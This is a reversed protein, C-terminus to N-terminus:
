EVEPLLSSHHHLIPREEGTAIVFTFRAGFVSEEGERVICWDYIGGIIETGGAQLEEVVTEGRVTVRVERQHTIRDFYGGIGEESNYISPSFTPILVAREAYLGAVEGLKMENVGEIWSDLIRRVSSQNGSM